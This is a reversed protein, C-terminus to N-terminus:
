KAEDGTAPNGTEVPGKLRGVQLGLVSDVPPAWTALGIDTTLARWDAPAAAAAVLAALLALRHGRM